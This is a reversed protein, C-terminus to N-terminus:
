IGKRTHRWGARSRDEGAAPQGGNSKLCAGGAPNANRRPASRLARDKVGRLQLGHQELARLFRGGLQGPAGIARVPWPQSGRQKWDRLDFTM